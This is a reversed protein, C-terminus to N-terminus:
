LCEEMDEKSILSVLGRYAGIDKASIVSDVEKKIKEGVLKVDFPQLAEGVVSRSLLEMMEQNVEGYVVTTKKYQKEFEDRKIRRTKQDGGGKNTDPNHQLVADKYTKTTTIVNDKRIVMGNVDKTPGQSAIGFRRNYSRANKGRNNRKYGVM